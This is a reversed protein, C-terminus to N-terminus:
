KKKTEFHRSPFRSTFDNIEFKSWIELWMADGTVDTTDISLLNSMKKTEFHILQFRPTFDNIEFKSWLELWIADGSAGITDISLM